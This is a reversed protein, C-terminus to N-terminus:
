AVRAGAGLREGFPKVPAQALENLFAVNLRQRRLHSTRRQHYRDVDQPGLNARCRVAKGLIRAKSAPANPLLQRGTQWRANVLPAPNSPLKRASISRTRAAAPRARGPICGQGCGPSPRAASRRWPASPRCCGSAFRAEARSRSSRAHPNMAWPTRNSPHPSLTPSAVPTKLFRQILPVKQM